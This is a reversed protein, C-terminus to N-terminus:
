TPPPIVQVLILVHLLYDSTDEAPLEMRGVERVRKFWRVNILALNGSFVSFVGVLCYIFVLPRGWGAVDANWGGPHMCIYSYIFQQLKILSLLRLQLRTHVFSSPLGGGTQQLDIYIM